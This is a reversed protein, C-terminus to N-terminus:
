KKMKNLYKEKFSYIHYHGIGYEYAAFFVTRGNEEAYFVDCYMPSIFQKKGVILIPKKYKRWENQMIRIGNLEVDSGLPFFGFYKAAAIM